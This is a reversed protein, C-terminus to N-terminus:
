GGLLGGASDGATRFGTGVAADSGVVELAADDGVSVVVERGVSV